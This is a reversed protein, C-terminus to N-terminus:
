ETSDGGIGKALQTHVDDIRDEISRLRAEIAALRRAIEDGGLPAPESLAPPGEGSLVAHLHRPHWGLATSLAELTRASRRRQATNHQLERVIAQSVNAREALEHQAISLELM